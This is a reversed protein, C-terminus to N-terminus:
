LEEKTTWQIKAVTGLRSLISAPERGWFTIWVDLKRETLAKRVFWKKGSHGERFDWYLKECAFNDKVM